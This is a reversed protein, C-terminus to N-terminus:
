LDVEEELLLLAYLDSLELPCYYYYGQIYDCGHSIAIENNKEDEVGTLCLSKQYQHCMFVITKLYNSREEETQLTNLLSIDLKLVAVDPEMAIKFLSTLSGFQKQTIRVGSEKCIAVLHSVDERFKLMHAAYLEVYFNHKEMGYCQLTQKLFDTFGKSQLVQNSVNFTLIFSKACNKLRAGARITQEMVWRDVQALLGEKELMPLLENPLVDKGQYSWRVLSEGGALDKTGAFVAPQIVIRFNEMHNQVNQRLIKVMQERKTIEEQQKESVDVYPMTPMNRATDIMQYVIELFEQPTANEKHYGLVTFNAAPADYIEIAKYEEEIISRIEKILAFREEVFEPVIIAMFSVGDLRYFTMKGRLKTQLRNGIHYLLMNGQYTSKARNIKPFHNLCFGIVETPQKEAQMKELQVLAKYDKKFGSIQDVSYNKDRLTIRGALFLPVTKDANWQLMGSNHVWVRNGHVDEVQHLLEYSEQEESLLREVAHSNIKKCEPDCIRQEWHHPLNLILNSDFGFRDRMHDSIYFYNKQVDGFFFFQNTNNITIAKLLAEADFYYHKLYKQFATNNNVDPLTNHNQGAGKAMRDFYDRTSYYEQKDQYMEHDAAAILPELMLPAENSWAYGVAIHYKNKAVAQKLSNFDKELDEKAADFCLTLFEDGGMRYIRGARINKRILRYSQIIMEDGAEHGQTDNVQKLGSVDCFIVGVSEMPLPRRYLESLANRNYAGTLPDHFSMSELQRFLSCRKLLAKIYPTLKELIYKVTLMKELNPNEMSFAGAYNEGLVIPLFAASTMQRSKLMAYAEPSFAKIVEVDPLISVELTAFARQLWELKEIRDSKVQDGLPAVGYACWEFETNTWKGNRVLFVTIRSCSFLKGLYDMMQEMATAEELNTYLIQLCKGVVEDGEPCVAPTALVTQMDNQENNPANAQQNQEM